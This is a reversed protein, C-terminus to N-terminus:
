KKKYVNSGSSATKGNLNNNNSPPNNLYATRRAITTNSLDVPTNIFSTLGGVIAGEASPVAATGGNLFGLLDGDTPMQTGAAAPDTPVTASKKSGGGSSKKKMSENFQRVNEDFQKQWQEAALDAQTKQFDFQAQWQRISEAYQEAERSREYEESQLENYRKLVDAAQNADYGALTDALQGQIQAIQADLNGEANRQQDWINQNAKIGELETNALRQAAYSSRQMGRRLTERGVQSYAQRYSKDSAERQKDYAYQIGARQNQLALSEREQKQQAARRLQDYYSQYQQEALQRLQDDSRATYYSPM